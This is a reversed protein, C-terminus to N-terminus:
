KTVRLVRPPPMGEVWPLATSGPTKTKLPTVNGGLGLWGAQEVGRFGLILSTSDHFICHTHSPDLTVKSATLGLVGKM